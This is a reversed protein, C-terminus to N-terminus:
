SFTHERGSGKQVGDGFDWQYERIKLRGLRASFAVPQGAM